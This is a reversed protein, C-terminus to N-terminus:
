GTRLRARLAVASLAVGLAGFVAVGGLGKGMSSLTVADIIPARLGEAIYSMPNVDAVSGAPERLLERPFFASSLFLIVFVLPFIGQVVSARGTRLALAAALSGFAAAALPALILVVLIGPLGGSVRAGFVYGIVLFWIAVLLGMLATASLRGVVIAARPVPSVVLRDMFGVEIDLFGAVEPFGPHDVARGAGGTNVALFLSPFIFLPALFQPRRFTQRVSRQALAGVAHL